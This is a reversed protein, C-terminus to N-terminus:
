CSSPLSLEMRIDAELYKNDKMEVEIYGHQRYLNVAAALVGTTFLIIKVAGNERAFETCREMLHHGIGLGKHKETVALKALEYVGQGRPIMSVTGVIKDDYRAFFIAGGGSLIYGEPDNLIELDVPEVSVYKELWELSLSIFDQRFEDQWEVIVLKNM